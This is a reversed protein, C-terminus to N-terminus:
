AAPKLKLQARTCDNEDLDSRVALFVPQFLAGGPFAYLYRVEIISGVPPVAKDAPITVNGVESKSGDPETIAMRVSRKENHSAVIVQATEEFRLKQQTGGSAPRGASFPADLRKFVIGEGKASKVRALLGRKGDESYATSVVIVTESRTVHASLRRLRESYPLARLDEGDVKFIDFVILKEGVQEGDIETGPPLAQALAAALSEPLPVFLGKRNVGQVEGSTNTVMRREGDHKEQACWEPSLLCSEVAGPDIANLLQPQLSSVRGANETGSFAAGGEQPTYGKATKEGVVKEFVKQAKELPVPSQTKTGTSLTSGRRGWATNVVYGGAVQEITAHYVKDSSGERYYLSASKIANSTNM